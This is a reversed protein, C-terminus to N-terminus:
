RGLHRPVGEHVGFWRRMEERAAGLLRLTEAERAYRPLYKKTAALSMGGTANVEKEHLETWATMMM